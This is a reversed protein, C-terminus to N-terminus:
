VVRVHPQHFTPLFIACNNCIKAEKSPVCLGNTLVFKVLSLMCILIDVVYVTSEKERREAKILIRPM